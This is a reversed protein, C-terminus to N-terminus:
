YKFMHVPHQHLDLYVVNLVHAKSIAQYKKEATCEELLLMKLQKM